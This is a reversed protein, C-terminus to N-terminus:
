ISDPNIAARIRQVRGCKSPHKFGALAAHKRVADENPAIYVCFLGTDTAYSHVWDIRQGSSMFLANTAQRVDSEYQQFDQLSSMMHKCLPCPREVMFKVRPDLTFESANLPAVSESGYRAADNAFRVTSDFTCQITSVKIPSTGDTAEALARVLDENEAYYISDITNDGVLSQIWGIKNQLTAPIANLDAAKKSLAELSMLGAGACERELMFKPM